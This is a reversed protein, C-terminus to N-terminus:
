SLKLLWLLWYYAVPAALILSDVLDLIGGFEPILNASDKVQCRRKVISKTLDGFLSLLCMVLAFAITMAISLHNHLVPFLHRLGFAFGLSVVIGGFLGEWSKKPSIHPCLKHKGIAKGLLYGGIDTGKVVLVFFFLYIVGAQNRRTLDEQQLVLEPHLGLDRILLLHAMLFYIYVLGLATYATKELVREEHSDLLLRLMLGLFIASFWLQQPDIMSTNIAPPYVIMLLFGVVASGIGYWRYPRDGRREMLRYFESLAVVALIAIVTKSFIATQNRFDLYFIGAVTALLLLGIPIRIRYM